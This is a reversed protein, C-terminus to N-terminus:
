NSSLTITVTGIKIPNEASLTGNSNKVITKLDGSFTGKMWIYPLTAESAGEVAASDMRIDAINIDAGRLEAGKGGDPEWMTNIDYDSTFEISPHVEVNSRNTILVDIYGSWEGEEESIVYELEESDWTKGKSDYLVKDNNWTVMVLTLM